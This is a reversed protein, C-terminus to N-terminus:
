FFVRFLPVTLPCPNLSAPQGTGMLYSCWHEQAPALPFLGIM